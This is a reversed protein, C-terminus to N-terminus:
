HVSRTNGSILNESAAYFYAKFELQVLSKKMKQGFKQCIQHNKFIECCKSFFWRIHGFNSLFHLFVKNLNGWFVWKEVSSGFGSVRTYSIYGDSSESNSLLLFTLVSKSRSFFGISLDAQQRSMSMCIKKRNEHWRWGKWSM